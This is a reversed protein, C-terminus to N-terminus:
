FPTPVLTQMMIQMLQIIYRLVTLGTLTTKRCYNVRNLVYNIM